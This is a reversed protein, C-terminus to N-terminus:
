GRRFGIPRKPKKDVAMLEKIAAFIEEIRADHTSYQRELEALKRM